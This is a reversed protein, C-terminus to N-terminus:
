QRGDHEDPFVRRLKRLSVQLGEDFDMQRRLREIEEWQSGLEHPWQNVRRFIM